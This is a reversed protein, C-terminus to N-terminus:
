LFKMLRKRYSEEATLLENLQEFVGEDLNSRENKM